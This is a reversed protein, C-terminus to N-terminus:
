GFNMLGLSSSLLISIEVSFSKLISSSEMIVFIFYSFRKFFFLEFEVTNALISYLKRKVVCSYEVIM